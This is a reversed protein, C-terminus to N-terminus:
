ATAILIHFSLALLASIHFDCTTLDSDCTITTQKLFHQLRLQTIKSKWVKISIFSDRTQNSRHFWQMMVDVMLFLLKTPQRSLLRGSQWQRCHELCFDCAVYWSQVSGFFNELMKQTVLVSYLCLALPQPQQGPNLGPNRRLAGTNRRLAHNDGRTNGSTHVNQFSICKTEAQCKNRSQKRCM